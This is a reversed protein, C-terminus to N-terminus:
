RVAPLLSMFRAKRPNARETNNNAPQVPQGGSDNGDDDDLHSFATSLMMALHWVHRGPDDDDDEDDDDDDLELLERLLALQRSARFSRHGLPVV